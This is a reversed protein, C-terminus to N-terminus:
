DRPVCRPRSSDGGAEGRRLRDGAPQRTLGAFRRKLQITRIGRCFGALLDYANILKKGVIILKSRNSNTDNRSTYQAREQEEERHCEQSPRELLPAHM